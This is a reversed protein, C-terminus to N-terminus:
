ADWRWSAVWAARDARRVRDWVRDAGRTDVRGRLARPAPCLSVATGAGVLGADRAVRELVASPRRTAHVVVVPLAPPHVGVSAALRIASDPDGSGVLCVADVPGSPACAVRARDDWRGLDVVVDGAARLSALVPGVRPDDACAGGRADAGLTRAAGVRPLQDALRAGYSAEEARLDAWKVGPSPEARTGWVGPGAGAVDVLCGRARQALLVALTTTGVGGQWGAVGVVLPRASRPPASAPVPATASTSTRARAIADALLDTVLAWDGPLRLTGRDGIVVVPARVADPGTRSVHDPDATLVLAPPVADAPMNRAGTTGPFADSVDARAGLLRVVDCLHATVAADLGDLVVRPVSV